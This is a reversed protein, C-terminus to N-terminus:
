HALLVPLTTTKLISDTTGGLVLERLRSHGYAGMVLLDCHAEDAAGLLREAVSWTGSEIQRCSAVVGHRALYGELDLPDADVSTTRATLITTEQAKVLFPLAASLARTSERSEDWAVAVRHGLETGTETPALLVPRGTDFLTAELAATLGVGDSTKAMVILDALRGRWALERDPRGAVQRWTVSFRGRPPTEDAEVVPPAKDGGSEGFLCFKEFAGHAAEARGKAAQEANELIQAIAGGTMGDSVLPISDEATHEVHLFDVHAQFSRGVALAARVVAESGEGGDVSALVEAITM